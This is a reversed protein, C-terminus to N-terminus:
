LSRELPPQARTTLLTGGLSGAVDKVEVSETGGLLVAFRIAEYVALPAAELATVKEVEVIPSAVGEGMGLMVADPETSETLAASDPRGVLSVVAPTVGYVPAADLREVKASDIQMVPM